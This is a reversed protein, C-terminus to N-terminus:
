WKKIKSSEEESDYFKGFWKNIEIQVDQPLFKEVHRVINHLGLKHDQLPGSKPILYGDALHVEIQISHERFYNEIHFIFTEFKKDTYGSAWNPVNKSKKFRDLFSV